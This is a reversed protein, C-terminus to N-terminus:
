SALRGIAPELKSARESAEALELRGLVVNPM